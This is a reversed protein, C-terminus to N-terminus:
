GELKASGKVYGIKTWDPTQFGKAGYTPSTTPNQVFFDYSQWLPLTGAPRGM